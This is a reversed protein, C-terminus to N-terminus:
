RQPKTNISQILPHALGPLRRLLGVLGSTVSPYRLARTTWHCITQRRQITQAYTRNWEAAPFRWNQSSVAQPLLGAVTRGGVLAWAIGEGTFPEIYGAADGILFVRELGVPRRRTTLYSTGHCDAGELDHPVRWGTLMLVQRMMRAPSGAQRLADPHVAAALHLRNNEQRVLGVYARGHCAIHIIGPAYDQADRVETAVGIYAAPRTDTLCGAISRTYRGALGDAAVVWRANIEATQGQQKVRLKRHTGSCGADHVMVGPMFHVQRRCAEDLLAADFTRRSLARGKPLDLTLRRGEFGLMFRDVVVAGCRDPLDGCGLAELQDLAVANLCGGCVKDRPYHHKDLLLTRFGLRTSEMAAAIGAPGAGVVVVDWGTNLVRPWELAAAPNLTAM